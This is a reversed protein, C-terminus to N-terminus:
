LEEALRADLRSFAVLGAAMSVLGWFAIYAVDGLEPLRLHYLVDRYAEVMAVMPNLRYLAEAPVEMGGLTVTKPVLTIPYVIPTAYFLGQLLINILHKVDRFYVNVVALVLGIGFMISSQLVILLVVLPLWPLVFNGFGLLFIALVGFEILLPVMWSAMNALVLVQRPFYVKKILNGNAVLSETAGNLSNSLFNWPLLGCLLFLPFSALGSPDGIPSELKLFVNFVVSFILASAVPNLLSWLWGLVSRKYKGKLERLTLRVALDRVHSYSSLM